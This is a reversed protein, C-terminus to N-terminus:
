WTSCEETSWCELELQRQKMFEALNHGWQYFLPLKKVQRTRMPRHMGRLGLGCVCTHRSCLMYGDRAVHIGVCACVGVGRILQFAGSPRLAFVKQPWILCIYIYLKKKKLTIFDTKQGKLPWDTKLERAKGSAESMRWTVQTVGVKCSSTSARCGGWSTPTANANEWSKIQTASVQSPSVVRQARPEKRLQVHFGYVWLIAIERGSLLTQLTTKQGEQGPIRPGWYPEM